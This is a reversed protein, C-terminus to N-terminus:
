LADDRNNRKQHLCYANGRCNSRCQEVVQWRMATHSARRLVLAYTESFSVFCSARYGQLIEHSKVLSEKILPQGKKNQGPM